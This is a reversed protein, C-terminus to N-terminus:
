LQFRAFMKTKKGVESFIKAKTYKTIDDTVTFEGWAGWGKAHMRREPIVERNFHTQKEFLWIDQISVHGRKGSTMSDYNNDVPQGSARRLHPDKVESNESSLNEGLGNKVAPGKQMFALSDKDMKMEKKKNEDKM